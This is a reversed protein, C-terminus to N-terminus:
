EAINLWSSHKLTFVLVLKDAIRKAEASPFVEYLAGQDHTNLNDLAVTIKESTGFNEAVPRERIESASHDTRFPNLLM